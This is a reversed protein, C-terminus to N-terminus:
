KYICKLRRLIIFLLLNFVISFLIYTLLVLFTKNILIIFLMYSFLPAQILLTFLNFKVKFRNLEKKQESLDFGYYDLKYIENNKIRYFLVKLCIYFIFIIFVNMISITSITKLFSEKEYKGVFNYQNEINSYMGIYPDYKYIIDSLKKLDEKSNTEIFFGPYYLNDPNYFSKMKEESYFKNSFYNNMNTKELNVDKSLEFKSQKNYAFYIISGREQGTIGSIVFDFNELNSNEMNGCELTVRDGIKINYKTQLDKSILIENSDDKPISGEILTGSDINIRSNVYQSVRLPQANIGDYKSNDSLFYQKNNKEFILTGINLDPLPIIKKVLNTSMIKEYDDQDFILPIKDYWNKQEFVTKLQNEEPPMIILSSDSNYIHQSNVFLSLKNSLNIFSILTLFLLIFMIVLIIAQSIYQKIVSINIIKKTNTIIFNEENYDENDQVIKQDIIRLIKFKNYYDREFNHSILIVIRKEEQLLELLVDRSHMDLHNDIEDLLLIPTTSLLGIIIQLKKQEGGSLKKVKNNIDYIDKFELKTLLKELKNEDYTTILNLNEKITLNDFLLFDQNVYTIYNTRLDYVDIDKINVNNIYIDGSYEVNNRFIANLFSTKGIGNEGILLYLGSNIDLNNEKLLTYDFEILLNRIKM